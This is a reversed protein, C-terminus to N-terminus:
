GKVFHKRAKELQEQTNVNELYISKLPELLEIRSNMLVKRPCPKGNALYTGLKVAAKPEYISCLPEPWKRESNQFSTAMAFPNRRSLLDKLFEEDVFPMDCAVVLWAVNPHKSFASLIGGTPGFDLYRDEIKPLHGLHEQDIQESRCSVFVEDVLGELCNYLYEVQSKGRYQLKGKDEGMRKSRGGGLVLGYVKRKSVEENWFNMIFQEIELVNDRQFYTIGEVPSKAVTGVIALLSCDEEKLYTTLLEDDEQTGSYIFIKNCLSKKYGEIFVVDCDIYLNKMFFRDESPTSRFGFEESSSISVQHAGAERAVQTDKGKKDMEFRHADHKIYGVRMKKSVNEILKTILTTKGSGSHGCICIELPHFLTNRSKTSTM